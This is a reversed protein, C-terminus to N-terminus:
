AMVRILMSLSALGRLGDFNALGIFSALGCQNALGGLCTLGILPASSLLAALDILGALGDCADVHDFQSFGLDPIPPPIGSEWILRRLRRFKIIPNTPRVTPPYSMMM